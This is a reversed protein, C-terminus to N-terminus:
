MSFVNLNRLEAKACANLAKMLNGHASDAMCKLLVQRECNLDGMRALCRELESLAVRRGQVAYGDAYVQVTLAGIEPGSEVGRPRACDFRGLLDDQKLAVVFFILLLFVVDIMPTMNLEVKGGGEKKRERTM